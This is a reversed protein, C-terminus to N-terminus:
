HMYMYVVPWVNPIIFIKKFFDDLNCYFEQSPLAKM